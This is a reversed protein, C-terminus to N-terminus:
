IIMLEAPARKSLLIAGTSGVVINEEHVMMLGDGYSLSPEITLVMNEKLVTNDFSAHSPQETLQMGLGHGLRGIDGSSDDLEAIVASMANYLDRCTNGPRAAAIGAETARWLVDYARRTTDDATGVAWNRDFDCFYGDRTCGTDMMLVDGSQLPRQSPPSIVDAYGGQGAGGVLYPCDDAGLGIAVRKFERFVEELPVGASAFGPVADFASSGIACIRQLKNIEAPSKVMRLSQVLGTADAVVLGPLSDMLREWDTLPMRLHTEHGKMVGLCANGTALPSLLETLLSVGDDAPAPAGWTRIDDLWCQRMLAEGIEPIVAVPKGQLPVFVFWPRTPSQWFLTHFGTFYRVEPESMLLIGSLGQEAMLAQASETRARYETTSFGRDPAEVQM